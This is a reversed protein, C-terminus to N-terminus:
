REVTMVGDAIHNKLTKLVNPATIPIDELEKRLEATDIDFSRNDIKYSLLLDVEPYSAILIYFTKAIDGLPKRDIHDYQFTASIHTGSGKDSILAFTGAAEESAQKLLSIGLGFKKKTKTTYFPDQAQIVEENDMGRGNDKIDISLMNTKKNVVINLSISSAEARTSNEIIDMIHLSIDDM